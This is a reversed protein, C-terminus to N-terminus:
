IFTYQEDNAATLSVHNAHRSDTSIIITYLTAIVVHQQQQQQHHATYQTVDILYLTLDAVTRLKISEVIFECRTFM